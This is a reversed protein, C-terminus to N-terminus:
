CSNRCNDFSPRSGVTGARIPGATRGLAFWTAVLMIAMGVLESARLQEGSVVVGTAVAIAPSVFAYLGARSAGWDRVLRLYITFAVLSGFLVLFLWSAMVPAATFAALTVPGIPELALSLAILALGGLLCTYASVTQPGLRRLLPRSLVSGWCYALTGGLIAAMGAIEGGARRSGVPWFLIVLGAIGLAIAALRRREFREEGYGLGIAFLAVPTLALNLVAALGSAVRQTGWFLLSYALVIVLAAAVLVAPWEARGIAPRTEGTPTALPQWLVLLVGAAHFRTGAFFLPPVAAVGIKIAIWTLGWILSMAAFLVYSKAPPM